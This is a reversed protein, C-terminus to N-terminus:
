ENWSYGLKKAIKRAKKRDNKAKTMIMEVTSKDLETGQPVSSLGEQSPLGGLLEKLQAKYSKEFAKIHPELNKKIIQQFNRPIEGREKVYKDELSRAIETEKNRLTQLHKLGEFIVQNAQHQYQPNIIAKSIQQEIWQNPRGTLEGLAGIIFEKAASNVTQATANKIFELGTLDGIINRISEFNGSELAAGMQQIALDMKPANFAVEDLRNLYKENRKFSREQTKELRRRASEKQAQLIRAMNPDLLGVAAIQEATLNSSDPRGEIDEFSGEGKGFLSLLQQMKNEQSKEKILEKTIGEPLLAYEQPLNLSALAEATQQQKRQAKKNEFFSQITSQLGSGAGAATSGVTGGVLQGLLGGISPARDIVQVM